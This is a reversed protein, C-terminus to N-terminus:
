VSYSKAVAGSQIEKYLIHPFNSKRKILTLQSLFKGTAGDTGRLIALLLLTLATMHNAEM